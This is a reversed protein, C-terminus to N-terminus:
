RENSTPEEALSTEPEQLPIGRPYGKATVVGGSDELSSVFLLPISM